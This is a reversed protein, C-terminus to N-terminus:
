ISPKENKYIFTAMEQGWIKYTLESPHVGDSFFLNIQNKLQHKKSWNKLTISENYYYVNFEKKAITFLENGLIEVLNGIICKISKTFAPFEKIPPMNTFYIPTKPYKYKLISILQLIDKRWQRPSNLSFADNGGLGVVILDVHELQINPLIKKTVEKFSM